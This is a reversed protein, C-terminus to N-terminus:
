HALNVYTPRGVLNILLNNLFELSLIEKLVSFMIPLSNAWFLFM